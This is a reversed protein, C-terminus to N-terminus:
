VLVFPLILIDIKNWPRITLLLVKGTPDAGGVMVDDNWDDELEGECDVSGVVDVDEDNNNDVDVVGDDADADDDCCVGGVCYRM